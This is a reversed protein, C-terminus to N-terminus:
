GEGGRGVLEAASRLREEDRGNIAVSAGEEALAVACALGLGATSACVIAKRGCLGLDM